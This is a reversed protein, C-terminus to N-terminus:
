RWRTWVVVVGCRSKGFQKFRAPVNSTNYIEIGEIDEPRFMEDLSTLALPAGDIFYQVPCQGDAISDRTRTFRISCTHPSLGCEVAIGPVSRFADTVRWGAGAVDAADLFYGQGREMREYFGALRNPTRVRGVRATVAPLMIPAPSVLFIRSEGDRDWAVTQVHPLYDAHRIAVELTRASDLQVFFEGGSGTGLRLRGDVVVTAGAVPALTGSDLVRGELTQQATGPGAAALLALALALTPTRALLTPRGPRTVTATDRRATDFARGAAAHNSRESRESEL